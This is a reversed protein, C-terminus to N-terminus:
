FPPVIGSQDRPCHESDEFFSLNLFFKFPFEEQKPSKIHGAAVESPPLDVMSRENRLISECKM